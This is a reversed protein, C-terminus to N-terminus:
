FPLSDSDSSYQQQYGGQPQSYNQPPQQYGGQPQPQQYTQPVPQSKPQPYNNPQISQPQGQYNNPQPYTQPQPAPQYNPQPQGGQPQWHQQQNPNYGPSQEAYTQKQGNSQANPNSGLLEILGNEYSNVIIETVRQKEGNDKEWERYQIEGVVLISSGKNVYSTVVKTIGGLVVINHWQTKDPIQKGEKTTFGRKKTALSFTVMENGNDFQTVKPDQGVYGTLTVTNM